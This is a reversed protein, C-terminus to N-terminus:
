IYNCLNTQSTRQQPCNNFCTPCETKWTHIIEVRASAPNNTSPVGADQRMWNRCGVFHAPRRFNATRWAVTSWSITWILIEYVTQAYNWGSKSQQLIRTALVKWWRCLKLHWNWTTSHNLSQTKFILPSFYLWHSVANNLKTESFLCFVFRKPPTFLSIIVMPTDTSGLMAQWIQIKAYKSTLM